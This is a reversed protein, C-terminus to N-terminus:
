ANRRQYTWVASNLRGSIFPPTALGMSAVCGSLADVSLGAEAEKIFGIIQEETFRKKM